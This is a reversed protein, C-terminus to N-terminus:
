RSLKEISKADINNVMLNLSKSIAEFSRMIGVMEVVSAVANVNSQELFGQKVAVDAPKPSPKEQPPAVLSNGERVVKEPEEFTVLKLQGIKRNDSYVVGKETINLRGPGITVKRGKDDLLPYGGSTILEYNQNLRLSGNRTYRVGQPTQVTLYGQGVLAVDYDRGTPELTGDVLNPAGQVSVLRPAAPDEDPRSAAVSENLCTFFAKQEKFGSTNLNALNNALLDLADM